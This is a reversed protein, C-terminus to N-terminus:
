SSLVFNNGGFNSQNALRTQNQINAIVSIDGGDSLDTSYVLRSIGLTTNFYVFFGKDSTIANNDAIAKAAAAANAFGDLLVIVNKDGSIANSNGEAFKLENLGFRSASLSFKDQSTAFDTIIDPTNLAKIGTAANLVPAGNGFPDSNFVFTDRGIGGTLTDIGEGGSLIDNFKGGILRDNGADGQAEVRVSSNTADFLDNGEGGSFKVLNVGTKKLDNVIFSDDGGEGSVDFVESTDVTLDFRGVAQNNLGVREFFAKGESNRGLVFNDGKELSGEVEITDQGAGGSMIDNGDGDDWALIDNGRGGYMVDDGKNGELEDNGNGGYLTDNGLGGDLTDNGNGGYLVDLGDEGFMSDDGDDGFLTDNGLGGFVTDRGAGARVIDAGAFARITDNGELGLIFDAKESGNLTDDGLTGRLVNFNALTM